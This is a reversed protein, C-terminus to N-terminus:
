VLTSEVLVLVSRFHGQYPINEQFRGLEILEATRMPVQLDWLWLVRAPKVWRVGLLGM